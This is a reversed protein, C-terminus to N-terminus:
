RQSGPTSGSGPVYVHGRLVEHDEDAELSPGGTFVSRAAPRTAALSALTLAVLALLALAMTSVPVGNDAGTVGFGSLPTAPVALFAGPLKAWPPEGGPGAGSPTRGPGRGSSPERGTSGRTGPESTSGTPATTLKSKQGPRELSRRTSPGSAHRARTRGPSREAGPAGTRRRSTGRKRAPSRRKRSHSRSGREKSRSAPKSAPAPQAAPAPAPAPAPQAEIPGTVSRPRAVYQLRREITTTDGSETIEVEITVTRSADGLDPMTFAGSADDGEPANGRAVVDDDLEIVYTAGDDLDSISFNVRDGSQAQSDILLFTPDAYAVVAGFAIVLSGLSGAVLARLTGGLRM